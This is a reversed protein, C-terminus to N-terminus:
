AAGIPAGAALTPMPAGRTPRLDRTRDLGLYRRFVASQKLASNHELAAALFAEWHQQTALFRDSGETFAALHLAGDVLATLLDEGCDLTAGDTLLRPTAAVGDVHLLGGSVTPAPWIHIYLLSVPAWLLPKTPVDGGTDTREHRWGPRGQDLEWLSTVDLPQDNYQVRAGFVLAETLDYDWQFAVAQLTLTTRWYGTLLNWLLLAENIADSADEPSWWPVAEWRDALRERLDALTYTTLMLLEAAQRRLLQHRRLVAHRPRDQGGHGDADAGGRRGVQDDAVDGHALRHRGPATGAHLHRGRRSEHLDAHLAGRDADAFPHRRDLLRARVGRRQQWEGRRPAQAPRLHLARRRQRRRCGRRDARVAAHEIHRHGAANGAHDIGRRQHRDGSEGDRDPDGAHLRRRQRDAAAGGRTACTLGTGGVAVPVRGPALASANLNVLLSGDTSWVSDAGDYRLMQGVVSPTLTAYVLAANGVMVSGRAAGTILSPAFAAVLSSTSIATIRGKADVTVVPVATASGYTGAAAGSAALTTTLSAGGTTVDGTLIPFCAARLLGTCAAALALDLPGYAPAAPSGLLPAGTTGTTLRALALSGTNLSSASRSALDALSSGTKSVSAWTVSGVSDITINQPVDAVALTRFTPVADAGTAPGAWFRNAQQTVLTLTLDGTTVVPSNSVQFIAPAALGVSSVTGAGVAASPILAGSWYLNGGLNYLSDSPDAPPTLSEVLTLADPLFAQQGSWQNDRTLLRLVQASLVGPAAITM